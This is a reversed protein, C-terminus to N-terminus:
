TIAVFGALSGVGSRQYVRLYRELEAQDEDSLASLIMALSTRSGMGRKAHVFPETIPRRRKACALANMTKSEEEASTLRTM